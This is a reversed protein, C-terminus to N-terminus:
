AAFDMEVLSIPTITIIDTTGIVQDLYYQKHDKQHFPRTDFLIQCLSNLRDRTTPTGHGCLTLSISGDANRWAILNDFLYVKEGDTYTRPRKCKTRAKFATAIDHSEQRM